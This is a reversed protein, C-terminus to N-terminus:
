PTQGHDPVTLLIFNTNIMQTITSKICKLSYGAKSHLLIAGCSYNIVSM